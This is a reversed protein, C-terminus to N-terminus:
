TEAIAEVVREMKMFRSGKVLVTTNTDLHRELADILAGVNKFHEAGGDFNRVAAAAHEGLALMRDIGMSKAYGGIEDHLQGAQEGVEGMDGFVLIKKGPVAALVDIAARVSDPNANYTDDILAAGHRAMRRQLRSKVGSFASLGAVIDDLSVGAALAAATAALANMVNHRGPLKLAIDQDTTGEPTQLRLLTGFPSPTCRATIDADADLGFSVVRRSRNLERWLGVHPDDANVIAVGDPPLGAFIEGKARAVAALGGLGELHARQANTIMAVTPRAIHTLYDIEGPHNMGMEIVAAAHHQRIKLLMLPLGIDNNLNGETALVGGNRNRTQERFIAACMEKATTKGNSGTIGILPLDFRGRWSAALDGLARRPDNVIILPLGAPLKDRHQDAWAMDVLAAVAGQAVARAVYDHGDFNAGKLAVFLDGEALSRTDTSVRAFGRAGDTTRGNTAHAAAQLTMMDQLRPATSM